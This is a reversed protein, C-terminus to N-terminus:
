LNVQFETACAQDYWLGGLRHVSVIDVACDCVYDVALFRRRLAEASRHTIAARSGPCACGWPPTSPNSVWSAMQDPAQVQLPHFSAREFPPLLDTDLNNSDFPTRSTQANIARRHLADPPAACQSSEQVAKSVWICVM